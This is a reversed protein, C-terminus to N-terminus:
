VHSEEGIGLSERVLRAETLDARSIDAAVDGDRLVLVRDCLRILEKIESSSVLVAAGAAAAAGVLEHVAVKAGVDVGQTPEDLLLVKPETRLWKALVLKQQNGGSFLELAREPEAPRLGVRRGWHHADAREARLQLGGLARRLPRLHPLTLNERANMSMVAGAGRRDAPVFAMGARIAAAPDGAAIPAGDVLVDGATRAVAGFLLRSLQEYGSGLIGTVGVVEGAEVDLDVRTLRPGSLGRVLLVRRAGAIRASREAAAVDGGAILRVLADHDVAGRRQDAVVRGDRLAIVRDAVDLVEDLRHSIFLVGAGHEAVGRVAAFLKAVEEGRLAATPEDLVLVNDPRTWGDLARALAVVTREAPTLTAVPATVDFSAGLRQVLMRAHDREARRPAPLCARRGLRRSLDLNEISSLSGVLGLDQHIFHLQRGPTRVQGGHDPEVVGALIKVLTSKGSGNHGVIAVVECPAVSLSVADLAHVGPYTKSVDRVELLPDM